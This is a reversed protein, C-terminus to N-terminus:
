NEGLKFNYNLLLTRILNNSKIINQKEAYTKKYLFEKANHDWSEVEWELYEKPARNLAGSRLTGIFNSFINNGERPTYNTVYKSNIADVLMEDGSKYKRDKPLTLDIRIIEKRFWKILEEEDGPYEILPDKDNIRQEVKNIDRVEQDEPNLLKKNLEKAQSIGQKRAEREVSVKYNKFTKDTAYQPPIYDSYSADEVYKDWEDFDEPRYLIRGIQAFLKEEDIVIGNNNLIGTIERITLNEYNELLIM